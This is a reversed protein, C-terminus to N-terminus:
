LIELLKKGDLVRGIGVREYGKRSDLASAPKLGFKEKIVQWDLKNDFTFIVYNNEELLEQTFDMESDLMESSLLIEDIKKLEGDKFGVSVLLDRDYEKLKAFDFEGYYRNLRLNLEKEKKEDLDLYFVDVTEHGLEKMAQVRQHGGIIINKRGEGKNVIIPDVLGFEKISDKLTRMEVPSLTRPNYEAVKLDEIKVKEIKM